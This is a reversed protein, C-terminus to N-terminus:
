DNENRRLEKMLKNIELEVANLEKQVKEFEEMSGCKKNMLAKKELELGELLEENSM